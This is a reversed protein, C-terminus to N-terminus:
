RDKEILEDFYLSDEEEENGSSLLFSELFTFSANKKMKEEISDNPNTGPIPVNNSSLMMSPDASSNYPLPVEYSVSALVDTQQRKSSGGNPSLNPVLEDMAETFLEDLVLKFVRTQRLKRNIVESYNEMHSTLSSVVKSFLKLYVISEPTATEILHIVAQCPTVQQDDNDDDNNNYPIIANNLERLQRDVILRSEQAKILHETMNAEIMKRLPLMHEKLKKNTRMMITAQEEGMQEYVSSFTEILLEREHHLQGEKEKEKEENDNNHRRISDSEIFKNNNNNHTKKKMSSLSSSSSSTESPPHHHQQHHKEIRHRYANQRSSYSKCCGEFHCYYRKKTKTTSNHSLSYEENESQIFWDLDIGATTTTATTTTM